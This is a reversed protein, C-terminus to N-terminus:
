EARVGEAESVVFTEQDRGVASAAPHQSLLPLPVRLTPDQVAVPLEKVICIAEGM